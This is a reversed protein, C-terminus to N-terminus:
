QTAGAHDILEDLKGLSRTVADRLREHREEWENATVDRRRLVAEIRALAAEIRGLAAETKGGDM